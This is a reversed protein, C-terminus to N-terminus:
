RWARSSARPDDAADYEAMAEPDLDFGRVNELAWTLWSRDEEVVEWVTRGRHKGFTLEDTLKWVCEADPYGRRLKPAPQAAAIRAARLRLTKALLPDKSLSMGEVMRLM